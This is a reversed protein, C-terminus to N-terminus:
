SSRDGNWNAINWYLLEFPGAGINGDNLWRASAYKEGVDVLPIVAHDNILIDNMQVLLGRLKEADVEDLAQEFVAD